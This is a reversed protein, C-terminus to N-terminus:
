VLYKTFFPFIVYFYIFLQAAM